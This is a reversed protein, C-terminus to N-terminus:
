FFFGAALTARGIEGLAEDFEQAGAQLDLRWKEVTKRWKKSSLFPAIAEFQMLLGASPYQYSKIGCRLEEFPAMVRRLGHETMNFFHWPDGHLPQMFATDLHIIGGPRLIRYLERATHHPDSLHEFVAQSVVADFTHDRFPLRLRTCVVDTWQYQVADLYVVNPRLLTKPTHGAGFDLVLGDVHRDLLELVDSSYPHTSTQESLHLCSASKGPLFQPVGGRLSARTECNGCALTRDHQFLEHQCEPCVLVDFLKFSRDRVAPARYPGVTYARRFLEPDQNEGDCVTVEVTRGSEQEDFLLDGQFGSIMGRPCSPYASSVDPRISGWDLAARPEGNCSMVLQPRGAQEPIYWGSFRSITDLMAGSPTELNFKRTM